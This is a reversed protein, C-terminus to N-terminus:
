LYREGRFNGEGAAAMKLKLAENFRQELLRINGAADMARQEYTNADQTLDFLKQRLQNYEKRLDAKGPPPIAADREARMKKATAEIQRVTEDTIIFDQPRTRLNEKYFLPFADFEM